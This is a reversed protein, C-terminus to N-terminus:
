QRDICLRQQFILLVLYQIWILELEYKQTPAVIQIRENSGHFLTVQGIIRWVEARSRYCRLQKTYASESIRQQNIWGGDGSDM